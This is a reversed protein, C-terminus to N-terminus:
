NGDNIRELGNIHKLLYNCDSELGQQQRVMGLRTSVQLEAETQKLDDKLYLLDDITTCWYECRLCANITPCTTKLNPRHCEGYQTTTQHMRSRMYETLLNKPRYNAVIKETKNVFKKDEMLQEYEDGLVQKLLHTYYRQMDPSRHRLYKMIILDRVGANVMVTAVTRRFQHSRFHWLKGDNSHIDCKKALRNLWRNFSTLLMVKSAPEFMMTDISKSWGKKRIKNACFLKDFEKGLHQRIYKQQEKIVAVLEPMVIPLEDETNYKETTFRIRWQTGRKRLCNFPMNCIEGIRLGTTRIILVMRQLPEPLHYLNEDLQNWVEEPLYEIEDNKPFHSKCKGKFWYTNVELWGELRCINFFKYLNGHYGSITSQKLETLHLHYDYTEFIQNDIQKPIFISQENLFNSFKRLCTVFTSLTAANGGPKAQVLVCLKVLLKLWDQSFESFNLTLVKTHDKINLALDVKTDWLDKQLIPTLLLQKSKQNRSLQQYEEILKLNSLFM